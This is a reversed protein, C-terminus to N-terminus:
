DVTLAVYKGHLLKIQRVDEKCKNLQTIAKKVAEITAISFGMSVGSAVSSVASLTATAIDLNRSTKHNKQITAASNSLADQKQAFETAKRKQQEIKEAQEKAAAEKEEAEKVKSNYALEKEQAIGKLRELERDAAVLMPNPKGAQEQKWKELQEKKYKAIDDNAKQIAELRKAELEELQKKNDQKEKEAAALETNKKNKKFKERAATAKQRLTRAATKKDETVEADFEAKQKEYAERAKKNKQEEKAKIAAFAKEANEKKTKLEEEKESKASMQKYEKIKALEEDWKKQMDEKSLNSVVQCKDTLLNVESGKRNTGNKCCHGLGIFYKITSWEESKNAVAKLENKPTTTPRVLGSKGSLYNYIAIDESKSSNKIGALYVSAASCINAYNQNVRGSYNEPNNKPNQTYEEAAKAAKRVEELKEPDIKECNDYAIKANDAATKANKYEESEEAPNQSPDKLNKLKEQAEAIAREAATAKDELKIIEKEPDEDPKKPPTKAKPKAELKKVLGEKDEMCNLSVLDKFTKSTDQLCDLKKQLDGPVPFDPPTPTEADLKKKLEDYRKQEDEVDKKADDWKEKANALKTKADEFAKIKDDALTKNTATIKSLDDNDDTGGNFNLLSDEKEVMDKIAGQNGAHTTFNKDQQRSKGYSIAGTTTAIASLGLGIGSTMSVGLGLQKNINSMMTTYTGCTNKASALKNKLEKITEKLEKNPDEPAKSNQQQTSIYPALYPVAEPPPLNDDLLDNGQQPESQKNDRLNPTSNAPPTKLDKEIKNFIEGPKKFKLDGDKINTGNTKGRTIRYSLAARNRKRNKKKARAAFVLTSDVLM